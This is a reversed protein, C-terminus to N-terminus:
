NLLILVKNRFENDNMGVLDIVEFVDNDFIWDTLFSLSTVFYSGFPAHLQELIEKIEFNQLNKKIKQFLLSKRKRERLIKKRV